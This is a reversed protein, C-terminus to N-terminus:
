RVICKDFVLWQAPERIVWANPSTYTLACGCSLDPSKFMCSECDGKDCVEKIYKLVKYIEENTPM